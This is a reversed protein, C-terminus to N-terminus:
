SILFWSEESIIGFLNISGNQFKWFIVTKKLVALSIRALDKFNWSIEKVHNRYSRRVQTLTFLLCAFISPGYQLKSGTTLFNYTTISFLVKFSYYFILPAVTKRKNQNCWNLSIKDAGDRSDQQYTSTLFM